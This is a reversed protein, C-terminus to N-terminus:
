VLRPDLEKHEDDKNMPPTNSISSGVPPQRLREGFVGGRCEVNLDRMKIQTSIHTERILDPDIVDGAPHLVRDVLLYYRLKFLAIAKRADRMRGAPGHNAFPDVEVIAALELLARKPM